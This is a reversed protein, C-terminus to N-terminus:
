VIIQSIYSILRTAQRAGRWKALSAESAGQWGGSWEVGEMCGRRGVGVVRRCGRVEYWGLM